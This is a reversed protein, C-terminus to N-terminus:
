RASSRPLGDILTGAALKQLVETEAAQSAAVVPTYTLRESDHLSSDGVGLHDVSVFIWGREAHWAAQAGRARAPCTRPSTAGPTGAAPSASASWPISGLEDPM